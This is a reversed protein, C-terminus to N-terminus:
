DVELVHGVQHARQEVIRPAEFPHTGRHEPRGPRLSGSLDGLLQDRKRGSAPRRMQNTPIPPAPSEAYACSARAQPASTPPQSRTEVGYRAWRSPTSTVIPGSGSAGGPHSTTTEDANRKGPRLRASSSASS